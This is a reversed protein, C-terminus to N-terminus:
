FGLRRRNVSESSDRNQDLGIMRSSILEEFRGFTCGRGGEESVSGLLHGM